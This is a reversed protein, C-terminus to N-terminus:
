RHPDWHKYANLPMKKYSETTLFFLKAPPTVNKTALTIPKRKSTLMIYKLYLM